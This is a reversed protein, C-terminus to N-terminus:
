RACVHSVADNQRRENKAREPLRKAEARFQRRRHLAGDIEDPVHPRDKLLAADSAVARVFLLATVAEVAPAVRQLAAVRAVRRNNRSLDGRTRQNM